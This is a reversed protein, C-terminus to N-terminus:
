AHEQREALGAEPVRSGLEFAPTDPRDTRTVLITAVQNRRGAPGEAVLRLDGVEAEAGPIPVRGLHKAM